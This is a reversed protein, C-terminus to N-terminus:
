LLKNVVNFLDGFRELTTKSFDGKVPASKALENAPRYHNFRQVNLKKNIQILIQDISGNLESENIDEHEDFASNFLKLYEQKEFLDEIDASEYGEVFEDFFRIKQKQIIKHAILHDLKSKSSPDINSDLLCAIKLKSGRLL